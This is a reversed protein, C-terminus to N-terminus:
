PDDVIDIETWHTQPRLSLARSSNAPVRASHGVQPFVSTMGAVTLSGLSLRRGARGGRRFAARRGGCEGFCQTGCFVGRIM